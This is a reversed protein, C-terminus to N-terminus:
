VYNSSPPWTKVATFALTDSGGDQLALRTLPYNDIFLKIFYIKM